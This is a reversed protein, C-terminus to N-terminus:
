IGFLSENMNMDLNNFYREQMSQVSHKSKNKYNTMLARQEQSDKPKRCRQFYELNM